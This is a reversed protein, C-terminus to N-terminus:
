SAESESCVDLNFYPERGQYASDDQDWVFSRVYSEAERNVREVFAPWSESDRRESADWFYFNPSPIEPGTSGPLWVEVGCVALSSSSLWRIVQVAETMRFAAETGAQFAAAQLQPALMRFFNSSNIM